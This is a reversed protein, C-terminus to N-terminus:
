SLTRSTKDYGWSTMLWDAPALTWSLNFYGHVVRLHEYLRDDGLLGGEDLVLRTVHDEVHVGLGVLDLDLLGDLRSELDLDLVHVHDLAARTRAAAPPTLDAM